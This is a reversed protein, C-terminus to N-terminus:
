LEGGSQYKRSVAATECHRLKEVAFSFVATTNFKLEKVEALKQNLECNVILSDLM